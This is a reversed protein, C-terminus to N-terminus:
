DRCRLYTLQIRTCLSWDQCMTLLAQLCFSSCRAERYHLTLSLEIRCISGIPVTLLLVDDAARGALDIVAFPMVNSRHQITIAVAHQIDIALHDRRRGDGRRSIHIRGYACREIDACVANASIPDIRQDIFHLYIAAHQALRFNFRFIELVAILGLFGDVIHHCLSLLIQFVQDDIRRFRCLQFAESRFIAFNDRMDEAAFIVDDDIILAM